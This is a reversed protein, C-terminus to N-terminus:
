RGGGAPREIHVRGNRSRWRYSGSYSAASVNGSGRIDVDADVAEGGHRVDGSGSTEVLFPMARGARIRVDGSGDNDVEFRGTQTGVEIDGSGRLSARFDGAAALTIDGSGNVSIDVDAAEGRYDVDGSGNISLDFGTAMGATILVDGSGNISMDFAGNHRDIEVDGSGNISLDLDGVSAVGIDGSGNISFQSAGGIEGVSLDGSGNISLSADGSVSRVAFDGCHNIAIRARGLEGAEGTFASDEIHFDLSAPAEIILTPYADIAELGRGRWGVRMENNRNRCQLRRLEQGGDVLVRDGEQTISPAAHDGSGPRVSVTVESGSVTRVEVRGIFDEISVADAGFSHSSGGGALTSQGIAASATLGTALCATALLLTRTM